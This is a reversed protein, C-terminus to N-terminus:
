QAAPVQNQVTVTLGRVVKVLILTGLKYLPLSLNSLVQRHRHSCAMHGKGNASQRIECTVAGM